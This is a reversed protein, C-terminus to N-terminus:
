WVVQQETVTATATPRAELINGPLHLTVKPDTMTKEPTPRPDPNILGITLTESKGERVRTVSGFRFAEANPVKAVDKFSGKVVALKGAALTISEPTFEPSTYRARESAETAKTPPLYDYELSGSGDPKVTVDLMFCGNVAAFLGGLVLASACRRSIARM